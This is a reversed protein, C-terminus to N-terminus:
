SANISLYLTKSLKAFEGIEDSDEGDYDNPLLLDSDKLMKMVERGLRNFTEDTPRILSFASLWIHNDKTSKLIAQRLEGHTINTSKM